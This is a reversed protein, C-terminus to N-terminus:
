ERWVPVTVELHGAPEPAATDWDISVTVEDRNFDGQQSRGVFTGTKCTVKHRLNVLRSQGGVWVELPPRRAGEWGVPAPEGFRHARIEELLTDALLVASARHRTMSTMRRSQQASQYLVFFAILVLVLAILVETLIFGTPRKLEESFRWDMRDLEIM